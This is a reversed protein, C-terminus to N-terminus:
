MSQPPHIGLLNLGTALVQQTARCLALRSARIEAPSNLVHCQEYFSSFNTALEFLYGCLRHPVLNAAVEDVVDPFRILVLALMQETPDDLHTIEVADLDSEAQARRLIQCIRAHAYQLYPGTDGTTKTMRDIDFVYDKHLQNSLDAYKIAALGVEPTTVSEAEDLFDDLHVVLGDRTKFPTGDSGLVMGFGIHEALVAQTLYSALHAVAFVKMFHDHQRADTVYILRQAGLDDIRHKIAAVDTVDYGYGGASNRLIIPAEYGPVFVVLAGENITAIGRTELDQCISALMHNYSSEGAVDANTLMVGLRAYTADFGALSIEILRQWLALTATEGQQLAVVRARARDAFGDDNNLHTNARLYLDEAGSLDLHDLDLNEDLIQEILMGFQRGWDGIHNQAIVTHGQARLIRAFCDGIITSRLHGVHMKKAVNPSSYDVVVVMPQEVQAIGVHPDALQATVEGALVDCRIRINIFGPGAIELPECLDDLDLQSVIESAVQRPQRGQDAGLRLAVNCQYHGFQPKTSPRLEPDVGTVAQIRSALIEVVSAMGEITEHKGLDFLLAWM